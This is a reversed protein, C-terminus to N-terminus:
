AATRLEIWTRRTSTVPETKRVTAMARHSPCYTPHLKTPLCCAHMDQGPVDIPWKCEGAQRETWVRPESGELPMWARSRMTETVTALKVRPAKVRPPEVKKAHTRRMLKEPKSLAKKPAAGKGMLGLRHVKGLVASRSVGGLAKSIQTGSQGATWLTRLTEVREDTWGAAIAQARRSFSGAGM